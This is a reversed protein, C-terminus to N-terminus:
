LYTGALTVLKGGLGLKFRSVGPMHLGDVGGLDLWEVGLGKLKEIAAWLLLNHAHEERGELGTWGVYYTAAKGHRVTLIAAIPESGSYATFVQVARKDRGSDALAAVFAGAPARFKRRKRHQDHRSLLWEMPAGGYGSRVRLKAGEAATLQNRWKVHLGARLADLDPRLDLWVTSYGTVMPRMGVAGMQADSEAGAPLEPTLFFLNLKAVPYRRKILRFVAGREVDSVAALFVPGRTLKAMRFGGPFRWELLLAAAVRDPGRMFVVPMPRYGSARAMAAGYASCQELPLREAAATLEDWQRQDVADWLAVIGDLEEGRRDSGAGSAM